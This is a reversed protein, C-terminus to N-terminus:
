LFHLLPSTLMLIIVIAVLRVWWSGAAKASTLAFMACVEYFHNRNMM